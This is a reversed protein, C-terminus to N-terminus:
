QPIDAYAQLASSCFRWRAAAREMGIRALWRVSSCVARRCNVTGPGNLVKEATLRPIGM